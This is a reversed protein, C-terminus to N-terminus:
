QLKINGKQVVRRWNAIEGAIFPVFQASAQYDPEVGENALLKL